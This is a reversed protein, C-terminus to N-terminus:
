VEVGHISELAARLITSSTHATYPFYVIDVNRAAFDAELANWKPTGQWDDGVFMRDFRHLEWAAIKDMSDQAVARDVCRLASVIDFREDFEIIPSKGKNSVSLEDTTVGVILQDCHQRARELIRLHGVHFMDFVGTTYGVIM